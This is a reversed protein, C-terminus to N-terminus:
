CGPPATLRAGFAFATVINLRAGGPFAAIINGKIGSEPGSSWELMTPRLFADILIHGIDNM